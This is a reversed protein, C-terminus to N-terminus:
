EEQKRHHEHVYPVTLRSPSAVPLSRFLDEIQMQLKNQPVNHPIVLHADWVVRGTHNNVLVFAMQYGEVMKLPQLSSVGQYIGLYPNNMANSPLISKNDTEEQIKADLEVVAKTTPEDIPIEEVQEVPLEVQLSGDLAMRTVVRASVRATNVAARSLGNIITRTPIRTFFRVLGRGAYGFIRSGVHFGTSVFKAGDKGGVIALVSITIVAVALVIAGTYLLTKVVNEKKKKQFDVVSWSATYLTYDTQDALSRFDKPDITHQLPTNDISRAFHALSYVMVAVNKPSLFTIVRGSNDIGQGNWFMFRTVEYGHTKLYDPLVSGLAAGIQMAGVYVKEKQTQSCKGLIAVRSDVPLLLVRSGQNKALVDTRFYMVPAPPKSHSCASFFWFVCLAPYCVFRM